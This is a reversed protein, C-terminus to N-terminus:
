TRNPTCFLSCTYFNKLLYLFNSNGHNQSGTMDGGALERVMLENSEKYRELTLVNEQDNTIEKKADLAKLENRLWLTIYPEFLTDYTAALCTTRGELTRNEQVIWDVKFYFLGFFM